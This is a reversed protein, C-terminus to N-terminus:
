LEYMIQRIQYPMKGFQLNMERLSAELQPHASGQRGPQRLLAEIKTM